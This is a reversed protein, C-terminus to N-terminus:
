RSIWIPSSWAIEGDTQLVRVYYQNAGEAPNTDKWELSVASNESKASYVFQFNRIIVLERIPATGLVRIHFIPPSAARFDEGQMHEGARFDLVINDTSAFTRRQRMAELLSERTPEAAYVNAYSVHTSQHDSSAIVGLRYGKRWANWIFGDPFYAFRPKLRSDARPAGEYEYSTRCGQYIEVIPEINPDNDGWDNGSEAPEHPITIGGTERVYGYLQKTDDAAVSGERAGKTKPFTRFGRKAEIINRHGNPYGLSREYGFLAIFRPPANFVDVIKQTRWWVYELDPGPPQNHDTPAIFDLAAADLAYRFMDTISADSAGDASIDTHRHLDGRYLRFSGARYARATAVNRREANVAATDIPAGQPPAEFTPAVVSTAPCPLINAYVRNKSPMANRFGSQLLSRNDSHWVGLLRGDPLPVAALDSDVRSGADEFSSPVSWTEGELHIAYDNWWLSLPILSRDGGKRATKLAPSFPEPLPKGNWGAHQVTPRRFALWVRDGPGVVIGPAHDGGWDYPKLNTKPPQVPQLIRGNRYCRVRIRCFGLLTDLEDFTSSVTNGRDKGWNETREEYAVWVTGKSDTAVSAYGEFRNSAAIPIEPSWVRGKKQRLFVDYDGNRYSDWAVSIIGDRSVTVAPAWDDGPSSTVVEPENWGAGHLESLLIDFNDGRWAQWAMVLSGGPAAAIRPLIDAGKRAVVRQSRSWLKGEYSSTWLDWDGSVQASWVLWLRGSGDVGCAPKYLDGRMDPGALPGDWRGQTWHAVFLRDNGESYTQWVVWASGDPAACASPYDSEGQEAALAVAGSSSDQSAAATRLGPRACFYACSIM